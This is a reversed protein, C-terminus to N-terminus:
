PWDPHPECPHKGPWVAGCNMCENVHHEPPAVKCIEYPGCHRDEWHAMMM